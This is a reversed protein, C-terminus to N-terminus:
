TTEPADFNFPLDLDVQFDDLKELSRTPGEVEAVHFLADGENVLPLNTCGIVVGECASRVAVENRGLPDGLTALLEGVRVRRGLGRRPRLIGSRPARMWRSYHCRLPAPRPKGPPAEAARKRRPLMELSEMVRLIGKLGTRIAWEDFRLAEGAEYVLMPLGKSEVAERLSGDRVASEMVVPAGFVDALRSSEADGPSIRIQPLNSRHLSGTHLDIGHTAREVVEEMFLRAVRSALSGKESGPFCRNLDRRDPFYRSRGVFGFVNVVPVALLTGRLKKLRGHRLLRRLIEVGAIEDGHIAASVFLVPGETRGRVVEVPMCLPAQTPLEAVPLDFSRRQGPAVFEDGVQFPSNM